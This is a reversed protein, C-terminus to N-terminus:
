QNIVKIEKVDLTLESTNYSGIRFGTLTKWSAGQINSFDLTYISYGESDVEGTDVFHAWFDGTFWPTSGETGDKIYTGHCYMSIGTVNNTKVRMELTQNEVNINALGEKYVYTDGTGTIRTSGDEQLELTSVADSKGFTELAAASIYFADGKKVYVLDNNVIVGLYKSNHCSVYQIIAGANSEEKLPYIKYRVDKYKGKVGREYCRVAKGKPHITFAERHQPYLQLPLM